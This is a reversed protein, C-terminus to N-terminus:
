PGITVPIAAEPQPPPIFNESYFIGVSYQGPSITFLSTSLDIESPYVATGPCTIFSPLSEALIQHANNDILAAWAEANPNGDSVATFVVRILGTRRFTTTPQAIQVNQCRNNVDGTIAGGTQLGKIHGGPTVPVSTNGLGPTPTLGPLTTTGPTNSQGATNGGLHGNVLTVILIIALVVGVGGALVAWGTRSRKPPVYPPLPPLPTPGAAVFSDDGAWGRQGISQSAPSAAPFSGPLPAAVQTAGVPPAVPPAAVPATAALPPIVLPSVPSAQQAPPAIMQPAGPQGPLPQALAAQQQAAPATGRARACADRYAAAFVIVSPWRDEPRKALARLIVEDVEAPISPNRSRLSPAPTALQQTVMELVGGQFPLQGTLLLFAMAALSYQDSAPVAQRQIQEPSSYAATGSYVGSNAAGTAFKALGFDALLLHIGSPSGGGMLFNAPKVDRHLVGRDHAHQLAQAAQDLIVGTLDLSLPLGFRFAPHGPTLAQQLSGNPAYAMVLYALGDQEGFDYVPLIHPHEMAAIAQAERAFREALSAGSGAAAEVEPRVLKIAVQRKLSIQEALYVEGMGGDGLRRIIRCGGILQGELGAM